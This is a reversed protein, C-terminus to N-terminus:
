KLFHAVVWRNKQRHERYNLGENEACKRIAPLDDEYFGSVLLSGHHELAAAYSPIQDQLINRNINALILHFRDTPIAEQEGQIVRINSRNNRQINELANEHAWPDHDIAVVEAAGLKSALIALVATGCGMDLVRRGEMKIKMIESVMQWTTEHHATGFSMKPEIIIDFPLDPRPEHFPARIFCKGDIEVPEFNREWEANWNKEELPNVEFKLNQGSSLSDMLGRFQNEDYSEVPIYARFAAGEESFSDFGIGSLLATLLDSDEPAVGSIQVELYKVM